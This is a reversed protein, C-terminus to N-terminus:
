TLLCTKDVKHNKLYKKQLNRLIEVVDEDFDVPRVSTENKTDGYELGKGAIEDVAKTVHLKLNNLDVNRWRLALIESRRLGTYLSVYFLAYLLAYLNYTYKDRVYNLLNDAEEYSLPYIDPDDPSPAKVGSCPNNKLYKYPFVAHKLAESMIRHHNQVTRKSLGGKGNLRSNELKENQYKIIHRQQLDKLKLRVLYPIVHNKIVGEYDQYTRTAVNNKCYEQLWKLLYDKFTIQTPKIFGDDEYKVALKHKINEAQKKTCNVTRYMRNRKGNKPDMGADICIQWTKDGRNRLHAM